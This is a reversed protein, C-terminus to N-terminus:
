LYKEVMEEILEGITTRRHAAAIKLRLHLDQRINATLRMDGEPVLGSLPKGKTAKAPAKAARRGPAERVAAKPKVAEKPSAPIPAKEEKKVAPKKPTTLAPKAPSPLDFLPIQSKTDDKLM